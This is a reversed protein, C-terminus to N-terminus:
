RARSEVGWFRDWFRVTLSVMSLSVSLSAVAAGSPTAGLLGMKGLTAAVAPVGAGGLATVGVIGAVGFGAYRRFMALNVSDREFIQDFDAIDDLQTYLREFSAITGNHGACWENSWRDSLRSAM